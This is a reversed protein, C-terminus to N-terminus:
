PERRLPMTEVAHNIYVCRLGSWAASAAIVVRHMGVRTTARM